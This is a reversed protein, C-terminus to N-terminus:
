PTIFAMSGDLVIYYTLISRTDHIGLPYVAHAYICTDAPKVAAPMAAPTANVYSNSM